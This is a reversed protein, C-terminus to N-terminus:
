TNTLTAPQSAPQSAPQTDQTRQKENENEFNTNAKSTKIQEVEKQKKKLLSNERRVVMAKERAAALVALQADSRPKPTKVKEVTVVEDM